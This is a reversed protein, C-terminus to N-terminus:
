VGELEKYDETSGRPVASDPGFFMADLVQRCSVAEWMAETFREAEPAAAPNNRAKSEKRSAEHMEAGARDVAAHDQGGSHREGSRGRDIAPDQLRHEPTKRRRSSSNERDQSTSGEAWGWRSSRRRKADDREINSTDISKESTHRPSQHEHEPRDKHHGGKDNGSERNAERGIRRLFSDVLDHSQRLSKTVQEDGLVASTNGSSSYGREEIHDVSSNGTMGTASNVRNEGDEPRLREGRTDTATNGGEEDGRKSGVTDIHWGLGEM